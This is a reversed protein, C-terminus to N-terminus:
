MFDSGHTTFFNDDVYEGRDGGLTNPIAVLAYSHILYLIMLSPDGQGISNDINVVGSTYSNFALSTCHNDLMAGFLDIVATPYGLQCMNLLLCDTIANPFASTIDLFIMTVIKKRRWTNKIDHILYLLPDATMHGPLGGFCNPLLLSHCATLYVVIDTVVTIILKGMTNYLYIPHYAKM